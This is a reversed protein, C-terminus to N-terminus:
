WVHDENANSITTDGKKNQNSRTTERYQRRLEPQVLRGQQEVLLGLSLLKNVLKEVESESAGLLDSLQPIDSMKITACWQWLFDVLLCFDGREIRSLQLFRPDEWKQKPVISYYPLPSDFPSFNDDDLLPVHARKGIKRKIVSLDFM